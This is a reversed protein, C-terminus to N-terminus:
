KHWVTSLKEVRKVDFWHGPVWDKNGHTQQPLLSVQVCGYLDFSVSDVVGEFGTVKDRCNYGLWSFYEQLDAM